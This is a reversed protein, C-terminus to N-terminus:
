IFVPLAFLITGAILIITLMNVWKNNLRFFIFQEITRGLCFVSLGVMFFRGFKTESLEHPFLFCIVAVFVFFYILRLNAIQIIARNVFNIKKLDNKWDFLKWFLIHFVAFSLAYIGCLFILIKTAEMKLQKTRQIIPGFQPKKGPIWM